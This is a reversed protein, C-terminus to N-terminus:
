KNDVQKPYDFWIRASVTDCVHVFAVLPKQIRETTSFDDGEGHTYRLSNKHVDNLIIGYKEAKNWIFLEKEKDSNFEIKTKVYKFPKELDHLFLVLMVDSLSFDLKRFGNMLGFLGYGFNMSEELHHIYGGSWAQHKTLSGPADEFRKKNDDLLNECATRNPEEIFNLLQNLDLYRM